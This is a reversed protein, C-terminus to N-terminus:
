KKGYKLYDEYLEDITRQFVGKKPHNANVPREWLKGSNSICKWDNKGLWKVFKCVEKKM